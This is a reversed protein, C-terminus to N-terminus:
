WSVNKLEKADSNGGPYAEQAERVLKEYGKWKVKIECRFPVPHAIVGPKFLVEPMVVQHDGSVVKRIDIMTLVQAITVFLANDAVYRGPCIRRGYGFVFKRPDRQVPM